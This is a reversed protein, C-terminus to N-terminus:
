CQRKENLLFQLKLQIVVEMPLYNIETACV